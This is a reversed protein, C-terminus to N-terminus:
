SSPNRPTGDLAETDVDPLASVNIGFVGVEGDFKLETVSTPDVPLPSFHSSVGVSGGVDNWYPFTGDLGRGSRTTGFRGGRVMSCCATVILM